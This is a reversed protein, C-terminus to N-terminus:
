RLHWVRVSYGASEAPRERYHVDKIQRDNGFIAVERLEDLHSLDLSGVRSKDQLTDAVGGLYNTADWADRGPPAHLVVELGIPETTTEWGVRVIEVRAAELLARVRSAHSHQVGFMSRAESKAPPWGDVSFAIEVVIGGNAVGRLTSTFKLTVVSRAAGSV